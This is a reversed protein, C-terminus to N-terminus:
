GTGSRLLIDTPDAQGGAVGLPVTQPELWTRPGCHGDPWAKRNAPAPEARLAM